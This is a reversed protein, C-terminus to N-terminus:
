GAAPTHALELKIGDPDLFFVAYYGEGYDPQDDPGSEITAGMAKLREALADVEARCAARWALHHLGPAWRNHPRHDDTGAAAGEQAPRLIFWGAPGEWEVYDDQTESRRYGLFDMVADYFAVSVSLDRVTLCIHSLSGLKVPAM